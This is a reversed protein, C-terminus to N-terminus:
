FLSSNKENQKIKIFFLIGFLILLISFIQAETLNFFIRENIRFFEIFLRESGVLMLYLSFMKGNQFIKERRKWFILFITLCILFEYVPTPHLPTNNPVIGNPFNATIESFNKFAISPPYTGNEYNVGIPLDTPFGYDGDGAFHCGLRAIGYGLIMPISFSDAVTLFSIKKKKTYLFISFTALFFGGYYTLGSPSFIMEIPSHITINWHEILFLIKSGIIGFIMALFTLSNGFSSDLKYRKLELSLFYSGILFGIAMMLGYSYVSFPGIDFLKPCM